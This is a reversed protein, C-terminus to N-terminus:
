AKNANLELTRKAATQDATSLTQAAASYGLMVVAMATMCYKARMYNVDRRRACVKKRVHENITSWSTGVRPSKSEPGLRLLAGPRTPRPWVPFAAPRITSFLASASFWLSM